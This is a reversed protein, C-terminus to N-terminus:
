GRGVQRCRNRKLAKNVVYDKKGIVGARANRQRDIAAKREDYAARDKKYDLCHDQCGPQRRPPVCKKCSEFM